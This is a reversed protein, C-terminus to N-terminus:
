SILRHKKQSPAQQCRPPSPLSPSPLPASQRLVGQWKQKTSHFLSGKRERPVVGLVDLLLLRAIELSAHHDATLTM